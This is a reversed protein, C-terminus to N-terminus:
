DAFLGAVDDGAFMAEGLTLPAAENAPEPAELVEPEVVEPEPEEIM